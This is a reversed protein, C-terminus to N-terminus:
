LNEHKPPSDAKREWSRGDDSTWIDGEFIGEPAFRFGGAIALKPHGSVGAIILHAGARMSWPAAATELVWNKGDASSWVDNAGEVTPLYSHTNGGMVWLRGAFTGGFFTGRASWPASAAVLEWVSGDVSCWTDNYPRDYSDFGGFIWIRGNMVAYGFGRRPGWPASGTVEEWVTGDASSWVDSFARLNPGDADRLYTVGGFLYLRDGFSVLGHHERAEWDPNTSALSWSRGDASSWVDGLVNSPPSFLFGGALWIRERFSVASFYCREIWPAKACVCRWVIGDDSEWVDNYLRDNNGWGGLIYHKGQNETTAYMSRPSFCSNEMSEPRELGDSSTKSSSAVNM